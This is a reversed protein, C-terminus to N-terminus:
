IYRIQFNDGNRTSKDVSHTSVKAGTLIKRDGNEIDATTKLNPSRVDGRGGGKTWLICFEAEAKSISFELSPTSLLESSTKPYAPVLPLIM